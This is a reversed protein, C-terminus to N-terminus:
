YKDYGAGGSFSDVSSDNSRAPASISASSGEYDRLKFRSMLQDMIQAQSSLQESAAASEESTASNSQVVASIQSIGERIQEISEAQHETTDAVDGMKAVAGNVMGVTKDLAESVDAVYASGKQVAAIAHEIREKTARSAEDSKSALVRVEDAVVAFGKGAVGARAAEVAANLALINTQFAINSITDIITGVEEAAAKIDNMAGVTSQMLDSCVTIQASADNSLQSSDRALSVGEEAGQAIETITASLEEVASAQQTAGQALTQASNSVQDAGSSVQDSSSQIQSLTISLSRNIGRISALVAQLAGVYDEEANTRVDFDGDAMAKLLRNVDAIVNGLVRQSTRLAQCMDGLENKSEFTVPIDLKGESYGILATRAEEVPITINRIIKLELLMVLLTALVLVAIISVISITVLNAQQKITNDQDATIETQLKSAAEDVLNLAPTCEEQLQRIAEQLNGSTANSLIEPVVSGWTQVASIYNNLATEDALAHIARLETIDSELSSLKESITQSATQVSSSDPALAIDRLNRAAMNVNLRCTRVLTSARVNTDIIRQYSSSQINMIVLTAVVIAVSVLITVAFGMILSMKIKMNKLM